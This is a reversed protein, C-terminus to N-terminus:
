SFMQDLLLVMAMAPTPDLGPRVVLQFVDSGFSASGNAAEKMKIEAVVMNRVKDVVKCSRKAYSGQIVYAPRKDAAAGLFVRALVNSNSNLFNAQKKLSFLPKKKEKKSSSRGNTHDAAEGEYVLWEDQLSLKKHHRITLIPKGKGDMLVEEGSDGRYNDVRYVLDGESGIVTFGTCCYLLSKRWVTLSTCPGPGEEEEEKNVRKRYDEEDSDSQHHHVAARSRRSKFFMM